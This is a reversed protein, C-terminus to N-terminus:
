RLWDMGRRALAIVTASVRRGRSVQVHPRTWPTPLTRCGGQEGGQILHHRICGAVLQPNLLWLEHLPGSWWWRVGDGSGELWRTASFAVTTIPFETTRAVPPTFVGTAGFLLQPPKRTFWAPGPVHGKWSQLPHTPAFEQVAIRVQLHAAQTRTDLLFALAFGLAISSALVLTGVVSTAARSPALRPVVGSATTAM